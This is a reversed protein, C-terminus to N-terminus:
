DDEGKTSGSSSIKKHEAKFEQAAKVAVVAKALLQKFQEFGAQNGFDAKLLKTTVKDTYSKLEQSHSQFQLGLTKNWYSTKKVRVMDEALALSTKQLLSVCMKGRAAATEATVDPKPTPGPPGEGGKGGKGGKGGSLISLKGGKGSGGKGTGFDWIGEIALSRDSLGLVCSDYLSKFLETEEESVEIEQKGSTEKIKRVGKTVTIDKNDMYEWVGATDVSERESIRGSKLHATIEEDTFVNSLAKWSVWKEAKNVSHEGRITASVTRYIGSMSPDLNFALLVKSQEAKTTAKTYDEKLTPNHKMQTMAKQWIKSRDLRNLTGKAKAQLEEITMAGSARLKAMKEDLTMVNSPEAEDDDDDADDDEGDDKCFANQRRLTTQAKNPM